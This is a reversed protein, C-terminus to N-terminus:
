GARRENHERTLEQLLLRQQEAPCARFWDVIEARMQEPTLKQARRVGDKVLSRKEKVAQSLARNASDVQEPTAMEDTGYKRSRPHRSALLERLHKRQSVIAEDLVEGLDVVDRPM